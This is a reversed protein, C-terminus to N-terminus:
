EWWTFKIIVQGNEGDTGAKNGVGTGGKGAQVTASNVTLSGGTGGINTANEACGYCGNNGDAGRAYNWSSVSGSVFGIGGYGGYGGESSKGWGGSGGYAYVTVTGIKVTSSGGDEGMYGYNWGDNKVISEPSDDRAGGKGGKGITVSFDAKNAISLTAKTAGGGGGAGGVIYKKVNFAEANRSGGQGGGGAGFAYIEVNAPFSKNFTYTTTSNTNTFTVTTDRKIKDRFKATVTLTLNNNVAFTILASSTSVGSPVGTWGDFAYYDSAPTATLTVNTGCAYSTQNPSRSVSGYSSSPSVSTTLTYTNQQFKATLEKNGDMTITVSPSTSGSLWGTFTYCSTATATVTVIDGYDYYVKDPNRSISGGVGVSSSVNTTLTYKNPDFNAALVMNEDMTITLPNTMGTAAGSWGLFSYGPDPTATITVQEGCVYTEKNPYRTASGKNTNIVITYQKQQFNAILEKDGDMTVTLPNTTGTAAGSWGIFAYCNEATATVIVTTGYDYFTQDLPSVSGGGSPLFKTTLRYKISTWKAYLIVDKTVNYSSNAAHGTGTCESNEYWGGFTYGTRTMSPLTINDGYHTDKAAPVGSTAGNGDFIVTYPIATWKAYLIITKTVTYSSGGIYGTGTGGSNEYWGGFTYGFRTMSPLTISGGYIASVATPADSTAGNGNFTVTYTLATWKAYLTVNSTAIYSQGVGYNTGTGDSKTNWGDFTHGNKSLDGQPPVTVGSGSDAYMTAPASGTTAGNENFTVTYIPIWKAFLTSNSIVRYSEGVNYKTGTGNNNTTWWGFRYGSRELNGQGPLTITAGSDATEATPVSGTTAGNANFTVTFRTAGIRGFGATITKNRDLKIMVPNATGSTDGTWGTFTYGNAPTAKVIVETGPNYSNANPNRSVSGGGDVSINTTLTYTNQEFRPTLTKNEDMRITVAANTSSSAGSWGAFTYDQAATATVVVDTGANYTTQNPNRSTTGGTAANITLTYNDRTWKAFLTATQTFTYEDTANYNRGSGDAETNWGAFSHWEKTLGAQNPLLVISGSDRQITEPPAGIAGNQNFYVSYKPLNAGIRGFGASLSMNDDMTITVEPNTTNSAGSWGLFEYGATPTATVTVQTGPNYRSASPNRSVTGGETPSVNVSLTYTTVNNDGPKSFVDLFRNLYSSEGGSNVGNEGCGAVIIALAAITAIIAIVTKACISRKM